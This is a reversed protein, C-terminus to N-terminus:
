WSDIDNESPTHPSTRSPHPILDGFTEKFRTSRYSNGETPILEHSQDKGIDRLAWLEHDHFMYWCAAYHGKTPAWHTANGPAYEWNPM